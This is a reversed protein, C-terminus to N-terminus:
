PEDESVTETPNALLDALEAVESAAVYTSEEWRIEHPCCSALGKQEQLAGNVARFYRDGIRVVRPRTTPPLRYIRNAEHTAGFPVTAEPNLHTMRWASGAVFADRQARVLERATVLSDLVAQPIQQSM